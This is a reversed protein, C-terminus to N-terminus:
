ETPDTLFYSQWLSRMSTRLAAPDPLNATVQQRTEPRSAEYKASEAALASELSDSVLGMEELQEKDWGADVMMQSAKLLDKASPEKGNRASQILRDALAPDQAHLFAMSPSGYLGMGEKYKKSKVNIGSTASDVGVAKNYGGSPRRTSGGATKDEEASKVPAAKEFAALVQWAPKGNADVVGLRKARAMLRRVDSISLGQSVAASLAGETVQEGNDGVTILRGGGAENRQDAVDLLVGVNLPTQIVKSIDSYSVGEDALAALYEDLQAETPEGGFAEVIWPPTPNAANLAEDLQAGFQEDLGAARRENEDITQDQNQDAAKAAGAANGVQTAGAVKAAVQDNADKKENGRTVVDTWDHPHRAKIVDIIQEREISDRRVIALEDLLQQDTMDDYKTRPM